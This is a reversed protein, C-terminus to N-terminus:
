KSNKRKVVLQPGEVTWRLKRLAEIWPTARQWNMFLVLVCGNNAWWSCAKLMEAIESLDFQNGALYPPDLIIMAATHGPAKAGHSSGRQFEKTMSVFGGNPNCFAKFHLDIDGYNAATWNEMVDWPDPPPVVIEEVKKDVGQGVNDNNDDADDAQGADPMMEDDDDDELEPVVDQM